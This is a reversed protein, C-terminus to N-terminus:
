GIDYDCNNYFNKNDFFFITNQNRDEQQTALGSM